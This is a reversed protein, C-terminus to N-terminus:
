VKSVNLTILFRHLHQMIISIIYAFWTFFGRIECFFSLILCKSCGSFIYVFGDTQFYRVRWCVSDKDLFRDRVFIMELVSVLHQLEIKFLLLCLFRFRLVLFFVPINSPIYLLFMASLCSLINDFYSTISIWFCWDHHLLCDFLRKLDFFFPLSITNCHITVSVRAIVTVSLGLVSFFVDARLYHLTESM